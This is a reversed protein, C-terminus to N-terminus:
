GAEENEKGEGTAQTGIAFKQAFAESLDAELADLYSAISWVIRADQASMEMGSILEPAIQFQMKVDIQTQEKVAERMTHRMEEPIEFASRVTIQQGPIKFLEKIGEKEIEELHQLRRIFKKIIQRELEEDALDRLVQRSVACVLQGAQRSLDFILAGKEKEVSSEWDAKSKEVDERAKRLLDARLIKVEEEAKNLMEQRKESIEEMTKRNTDADHEADNKKQEAEQLRSVIKQEREAMAKIVPRYLFHRLLFVLVLFNIIQAIITFYDIQM